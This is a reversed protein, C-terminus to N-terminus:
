AGGILAFAPVHETLYEALQHEGFMGLGLSAVTIGLQATALYRDQGVASSVIRLVGAALRDGPARQELTLRSAGILAFEAAVFLANLLVFILTALGIAVLSMARGQSAGARRGAPHRSRAARRTCGPHHCTGALSRQRRRRGGLPRTARAPNGTGSRGAADRSDHHGAADARGCARRGIDRLARC